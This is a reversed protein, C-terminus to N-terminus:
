NSSRAETLCTEKVPVGDFTFLKNPAAHAYVKKDKLNFLATAMDWNSSEEASVKVGLYNILPLGTKAISKMEDISAGGFVKDDYTYSYNSMFLGVYSDNGSSYYGDKGTKTTSFNLEVIEKVMELAEAKNKYSKSDEINIDYKRQLVGNDDTVGLMATGAQIVAFQNGHSAFADYDEENYETQPMLLGNNSLSPISAKNADYIIFARLDETCGDFKTEDISLNKLLSVFSVDTGNTIFVDSAKYAAETAEAARTWAAKLESSEELKTAAYVANPNIQVLASDNPTPSPKADNGASCGTLLLASAAFLAAVSILNKKM